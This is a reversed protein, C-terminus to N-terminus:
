RMRATTRQDRRGAAQEIARAKADAQQPKPIISPSRNDLFEYTVELEDFVTREGSIGGGLRIIGGGEGKELAASVARFWPEDRMRRDTHGSDFLCQLVGWNTCLLLSTGRASARRLADALDRAPDCVDGFPDRVVSADQVLYAFRYPKGEERVELLYPLWDENSEGVQM